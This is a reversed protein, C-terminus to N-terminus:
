KVEVESIMGKAVHPPGGERDPIFCIVAYRGAALDLEITETKGPDLVGMGFSKSEDIPPPASQDEFSKAVDEITADGKIAVAEAHHPQQGANEFQVTTAGATLGTASFEYEKAEIKAPATPPEGAAEGTVEFEAIVPADSQIDAVAYTGPELQVTATGTEGGKVTSLGGELHVWEPLPSKGTEGWKAAAGLGEQITHGEDVRILQASHDKKGENTLTIEALGAEATKPATITATKGQEQVSVAFPKAEASSSGGGGGGSDSKKDDSGCAALALAAAGLAATLRLRPSAM